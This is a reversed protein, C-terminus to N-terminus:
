PVPQHDGKMQALWGQVAIGYPTPVLLSNDSWLQPTWNSGSMDWAIIGAPPNVAGLSPEFLGEMSPPIQGATTIWTKTPDTPNTDDGMETVFICQGSALGAAIETRSTPYNQWQSAYLHLAYCLNAGTLPASTAEQIQSSYFPTPVIIVNNAGLTRITNVLTQIVPAQVAWSGPSGSYGGIDYAENWLEFLVQPDNAYSQAMLTWFATARASRLPHQAPGSDFDCIIVYLDAAKATGIVPDMVAAKWAQFNALAQASTYDVSEYKWSVLGDCYYQSQAGDFDPTSPLSSPGITGSTGFEGIYSWTYGFIDVSTGSTQTPGGGWNPNAPLVFTAPVGTCQYVPNHGSPPNWASLVDGLVYPTLNWLQGKDARWKRQVVRYRNGGSASIEAGLYNTNAAWAAFSITDPMAYPANEVSYLLTQDTCPFREFCLRLCKSYWPGHADTQLARLIYQAPTVGVYTGPNSKDGYVMGLGETALGRLIVQNGHPDQLQAGKVTLQPTASGTTPPSPPTVVPPPTTGVEVYRGLGSQWFGAIIIVNGSTDKTVAARKWGTQIWSPTPVNVWTTDLSRSAVVLNPSTLGAFGNSAYLNSPTACMTSEAETSYVNVWTVGYDVSKFVGQPEVPNPADSRQGSLYLTGNGLDVIQANGHNHETNNVQKWTNGSDTTRWTGNEGDNSWDSQTLWTSSITAGAAAEAPSPSTFFAYISQGTGAPIVVSRWTQAGDLSESLGPFGHFGILVHNVNTPDVAISYADNQYNAATQGTLANLPFSQTWSVGGDISKLVGLAGNGSLTYLTPATTPNRNPNLDIGAGWPKGAAVLTGGPGTNIPGVYTLGYDVSKWLGQHCVFVYVVNPNVPDVLVDQIGYNDNATNLSVNSPTVNNWVGPVPPTPPVVIAATNNLAFSLTGTVGVATATVTFAGAIANATLTPSTATGTADTTVFASASSGFLGSAGSAPATFTVTAGALPAGNSLVQVKLPAAFASGVTASQSNGGTIAMTLVPPPPTVVPPTETAPIAYSTGDPTVLTLIVNSTAM